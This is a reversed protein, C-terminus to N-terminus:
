ISFWALLKPYDIYSITTPSFFYYINILQIFNSLDSSAGLSLWVGPCLHSSNVMPFFCSTAQFFDSVSSNKRTYLLCVWPFLYKAIFPFDLSSIFYEYIRFSNWCGQSARILMTSRVKASWAATKWRLHHVPFPLSFYCGSPIQAPHWGPQKSGLLVTASKGLLVSSFLKAAEKGFILPLM